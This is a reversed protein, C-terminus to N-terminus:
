AAMGFLLSAEGRVTDNADAAGLADIEAALAELQEVNTRIRAEFAADDLVDRLGSNLAAFWPLSSQDLM